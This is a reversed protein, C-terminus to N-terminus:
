LPDHLPIGTGMPGNAKGFQGGSQTLLPRHADTLRPDSYFFRATFREVILYKCFDFGQSGAIEVTSLNKASRPFLM